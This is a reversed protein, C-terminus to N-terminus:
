NCNMGSSLTRSLAASYPAATIPQPKPINAYANVVKQILHVKRKKANVESENNEKDNDKTKHKEPGNPEEEQAKSERKLSIKKKKLASTDASSPPSREKSAKLQDSVPQQEKVGKKQRKNDVDM